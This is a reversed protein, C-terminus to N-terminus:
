PIRLYLIRFYILLAYTQSYLLNKFLAFIVVIEHNHFSNSVKVSQCKSVENLM